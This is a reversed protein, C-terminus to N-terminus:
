SNILQTTSKDCIETVLAVKGMDSGICSVVISDKPISNKKMEEYGKNSLARETDSIYKQGNFDKPTVFLYSKGYM